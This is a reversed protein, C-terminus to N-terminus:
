AKNDRSEQAERWKLFDDFELPKAYYYGQFSHVDYNRLIEGMGSTEIGEICVVAGCTTAMSVFSRILEREKTDEEIKSVFSRDIKIIDFPLNKAIGVSSFGTGFDDLAIQVGRGRLSVVTNRLLDM